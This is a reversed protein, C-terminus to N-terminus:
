GSLPLASLLFTQEPGNLLLYYSELWDRGLIIFPQETSVVEMERVPLDTIALQVTYLEVTEVRAHIDEVEIRGVAYLRLRRVATVPIATVDAGTDILAPVTVRPQRRVVSMLDASLVLAAPDHNADYPITM